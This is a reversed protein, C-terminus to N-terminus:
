QEFKVKVSACLVDCRAEVEDRLRKIVDQQKAAFLKVAAEVTDCFDNHGVRSAHGFATGANWCYRTMESYDIVLQKSTKKLVKARFVTPHGQSEICSYIYSIPAADRDVPTHQSCYKTGELPARSCQHSTYGRDYIKKECRGKTLSPDNWGM